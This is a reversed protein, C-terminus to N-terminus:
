ILKCIEAPKKQVTNVETEMHLSGTQTEWEWWALEDHSHGKDGTTHLVNILDLDSNVSFSCKYM